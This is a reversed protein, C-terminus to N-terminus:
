ASSQRRAAAEIANAAIVPGDEARMATGLERARQQVQPLLLTSLGQFLRQSDLDQFRVFSGVGLQVLLRGWFHQDGLVAAIMTPVGARVSTATSGAGGHHLVGVCRPFLADHDVASCVRVLAAPLRQQVAARDTWSGGLIVRRRLRTAVDVVLRLMAGEDLIPMSGLGIFFPAPGAAIFAELDLLAASEGLSNRATKPLGCFGTVVDNDGWDVPRPLMAPSWLHLSLGGNKQHWTAADQPALPLGRRRRESNAIDGMLWWVFKWVAQSSVKNLVHPMPLDLLANQFSSSPLTPCAHGIVLTPGPKKDLLLRCIDATLLGTVVVDADEIAVEVDRTVQPTLDRILTNLERLMTSIGGSALWRRGNGSTMLAESDGALPRASLGSKEIFAVHNLPAAVVVDHGRSQLELGTATFPSVDGRTGYTVLAIKTM